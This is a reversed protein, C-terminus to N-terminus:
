TITRKTKHKGQRKQNEDKNETTKRRAKNEKNAGGQERQKQKTRQYGERPEATDRSAILTYKLIWSVEDDFQISFRVWAVKIKPECSPRAQGKPEREKKNKQKKRKTEARKTARERKKTRTNPQETVRILQIFDTESDSV